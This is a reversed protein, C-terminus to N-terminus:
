ADPSGSAPLNAILWECRSAISIATAEQKTRVVGPESLLSEAEKALHTLAARWDVGEPASISPKEDVTEVTVRVRANTLQEIEPHNKRESWSQVRVFIGEDGGDDMQIIRAMGGDDIEVDAATVAREFVKRM